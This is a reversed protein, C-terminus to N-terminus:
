EIVGEILIFSEKGAHHNIYKIFPHMGKGETIVNLCNFAIPFVLPQSDDINYTLSGGVKSDWRGSIMFYFKIEDKKKEDDHILTYDGKGFRRIKLDKIKPKKKTFKSFLKLVDEQNFEELFDTCNLETFSCKAARTIKKGQLAWLGRALQLYCEEELFNELRIFSNQNFANGISDLSSFYIKNLVIKVM